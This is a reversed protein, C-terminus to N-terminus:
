DKWIVRNRGQEKAAYLREDTKHITDRAHGYDEVQAVGISISISLQDGQSKFVEKETRKRIKEALQSAQKLDTDPLLFLFEEGGWRAISDQSRVTKKFLDCLSMLVIDGMEHGHQDNIQKFYDVDVLLFSLVKKDRLSRSVEYDIRDLMGRRNLVQTLPDLTALMEFEKSLENLKQFSLQRSYEYFGSLFTLTFFSYLLRTKFEFSYVAANLLSSPTFVILCYVIMFGSITVLGKKLGSFFMVVPPVLYIWLPGTNNNGGGYVLFLCLVMLVTQLLFSGFKYAYNSQSHRLYLHSSLFLAFAVLLSMALSWESALIARIGLLFTITFGVFAFLNLVTIKRAIEINTNENIGANLYSRIFEGTTEKFDAM